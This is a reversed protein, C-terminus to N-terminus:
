IEVKIIKIEKEAIPAYKFRVILQDEEYEGDEDDIRLKLQHEGATNPRM